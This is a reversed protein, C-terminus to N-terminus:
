ILKYIHIYLFGYPVSSKRSTPKLLHRHEILHTLVQANKQLEQVRACRTVGKEWKLERIMTSSYPLALSSLQSFLNAVRIGRGDVAKKVGGYVHVNACMPRSMCMCM